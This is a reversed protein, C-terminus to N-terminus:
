NEEKNEKKFTLLSKLRGLLVDKAGTDDTWFSEIYKIAFQIEHDIKESRTKLLRHSDNIEIYKEIGITSGNIRNQMSSIVHAVLDVKVTSSVETSGSQQTHQTKVKRKLFHSLSAIDIVPSINGDDASVQHSMIKNEIDRLYRYESCDSYTDPAQNTKHYNCWGAKFSVCDKCYQNM